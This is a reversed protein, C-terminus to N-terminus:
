QQFFGLFGQVSFTEMKHTVAGNRSIGDGVCEPDFCLDLLVGSLLLSGSGKMAAETFAVLLKGKLHKHTSETSTSPLSITRFSTPEFSPPRLLADYWVFLNLFPLCM